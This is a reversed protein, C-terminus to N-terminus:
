FCVYVSPHLECHVLTIDENINTPKFLHLFLLKINCFHQTVAKNICLVIQSTEKWM